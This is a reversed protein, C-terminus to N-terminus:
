GFAARWVAGLSDVWASVPPECSADAVLGCTQRNLWWITLAAAALVVLGNVRYRTRTAAALRRLHRHAWRGGSTGADGILYALAPPRLRILRCASALLFDLALVAVVAGGVVVILVRAAIERFFWPVGRRLVIRVVILVLLVAAPFVFLRAPQDSAHVLWGLIRTALETM